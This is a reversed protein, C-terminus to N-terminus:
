RGFRYTAGLHVPLYFRHDGSRLLYDSQVRLHLNWRQSLRYDAGLHLNFVPPVRDVATLTTLDSAVYRRSYSIGVGIGLFPRLRGTSLAFSGTLVLPIYSEYHANGNFDNIRDSRYASLMLGASFRGSAGLEYRSWLAGGISGIIAGRDGAATGRDLGISGTLSWGKRKLPSQTSDTQARSIGHSLVIVLAFLLLSRTHM